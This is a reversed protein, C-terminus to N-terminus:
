KAMRREKLKGEKWNLKLFEEGQNDIIYALDIPDRAKGGERVENM